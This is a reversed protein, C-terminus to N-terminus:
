CQPSWIFKVAVTSCPLSTILKVTVHSLDILWNSQLMASIEATQSYCSLSRLYNVTVHCINWLNSQLMASIFDIQSYCSLSGILKVAVYCLYFWNSQLMAFVWDILSYCLLSEILKVTVDNASILMYDIQSYCPLSGIFKVTVHCIDLGYSQLMESIWEIQYCCPSFGCTTWKVTFLCLYYKSIPLSWIWQLLASIRYFDTSSGIFVIM